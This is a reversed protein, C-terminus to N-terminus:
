GAGGFDAITADLDEQTVGGNFKAVVIGGPDVLYSEPVKVVGFDVPARGDENLLVPWDGGNDAFFDRTNAETDRYVVSVVAADGAPRHADEFAQLEPHEIRCPACWTAFFNVLVWRGRNDDIDFNGGDLTEGALAPVAKGVLPSHARRERAPESTALVMVFGVALLAVVLSVILGTRRRRPPEDAIGDETSNGDAYGDEAAPEVVETV